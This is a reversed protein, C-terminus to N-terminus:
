SVVSRAYCLFTANMRRRVQAVAVQPPPAGVAQDDVGAQVQDGETSGATQHTGDQAKQLEAQLADTSQSLNEISVQANFSGTLM